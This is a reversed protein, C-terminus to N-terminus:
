PVAPYLVANITDGFFLYAIGALSLFPGFPIAAKFDKGKGLILAIGVLSGIGTSLLVIPLISKYGMWAGLMALLKVDGGGLGERKTWKEYLWAVAFFSGGGVFIGLLSDKWGVDVMIFSAAFGLVIGSLSLEDPIIQHYLDIVSLSLLMSLFIAVAVFSLSCGFKAFAAMFLLGTAVEVLPYQISIPKRCFGCRGRLWLYSLVPINMTWKLPKECEPCHSRTWVVSAEEPLRLIVVNLFSGVILGLVFLCAMGTPGVLFECLNM